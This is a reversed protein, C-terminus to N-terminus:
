NCILCFDNIDSETNTFIVQPSVPSRHQDKRVKNGHSLLM